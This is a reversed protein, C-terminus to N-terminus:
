EVLRSPISTGVQLHSRIQRRFEERMEDSSFARKPIAFSNPQDDILVFLSETEILERVALWEVQARWINGGFGFGSDNTEFTITGVDDQHSASPAAAKKGSLAVIVAWIVVGAFFVVGILALLWVHSYNMALYISSPVMFLTGIAALAVFRIAERRARGLENRLATNEYRQLDKSAKLAEAVDEPTHAFEIKM